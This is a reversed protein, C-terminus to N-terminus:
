VEMGKVKKAKGGRFRGTRRANILGVKRGSPINRRLTSPKCHHQQNGGGFPYEVPNM